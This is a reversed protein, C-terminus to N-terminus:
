TSAFELLTAYVELIPSTSFLVQGKNIVVELPKPTLLTFDIEKTDEEGRHKKKNVEEFVHQDYEPKQSDNKSKLSLWNNLEDIVEARTAMEEQM